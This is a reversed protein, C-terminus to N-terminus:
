IRTYKGVLQHCHPCFHDVDQLDNVCFPILCCGAWCGFLCIAGASIWTLTGPCFETKTLGEVGCWQCVHTEPWPGFHKHHHHHHHQQYTHPQQPQPQQQQPPYVNHYYQPQPQPPQQPQFPVQQPPYAYTAQQFGEQTQNSAYFQQQPSLLSAKDNDM